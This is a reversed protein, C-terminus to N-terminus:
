SESVSVDIGLGTRYVPGTDQGTGSAHVGGEGKGVAAAAAASM